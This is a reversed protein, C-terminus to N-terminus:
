SFNSNILIRNQHKIPSSGCHYYSGEFFVLRNKRPTVSKSVTFVGRDEKENYIVTDGDSDNVYYIATINQLNSFDIHPKHQKKVGLSLTLDLRCRLIEDAGVTDKIKFLLPLIVYSEWHDVLGQNYRWVWCNFGYDLLDFDQYEDTLNNQFYWQQNSSSIVEELYDAYSKSLFNDIVEIM